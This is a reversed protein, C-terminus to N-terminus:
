VSNVFTIFFANRLLIKNLLPALRLAYYISRALRAVCSPFFKVAVQLAVISKKSYSCLFDQVIYVYRGRKKIQEEFFDIAYRMM